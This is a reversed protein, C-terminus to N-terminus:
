PAEQDISLQLLKVERARYAHIELELGAVPPHRSGSPLSAASSCAPYRANFVTWGHGARTENTM